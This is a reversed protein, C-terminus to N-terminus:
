SFTGGEAARIEVSGVRVAPITKAVAIAEDLDDAEIFILGALQEKTEAFPGDTVSTRDDRVRITTATDVDKLAAAALYRGRKMLAAHSDTCAQRFAAREADPMAEFVKDNQYILCVYKM